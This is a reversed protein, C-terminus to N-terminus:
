KCLVSRVPFRLLFKQQLLHGGTQRLPVCNLNSGSGTDGLSCSRKSFYISIIRLFSFPFFDNCSLSFLVVSSIEFSYMEICQMGYEFPALLYSNQSFMCFDMCLLSFSTFCCCSSFSVQVSYFLFTQLFIFQLSLILINFFLM